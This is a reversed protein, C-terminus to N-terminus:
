STGDPDAVGAVGVWAGLRFLRTGGADAELEIFFADGDGIYGGPAAEGEGGDFAVEGRKDRGSLDIYFFQHGFM